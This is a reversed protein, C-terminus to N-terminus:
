EDRVRRDQRNGRASARSVADSFSPAVTKGVAGARGARSFSRWLFDRRAGVGSLAAVSRLGAPAGQERVGDAFAAVGGGRNGRGLRCRLASGAAFIGPGLGASGTARAGGGDM